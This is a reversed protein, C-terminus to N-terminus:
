EISTVVDSTQDSFEVSRERNTPGDCDWSWDWTFVVSGDEGAVVVKFPTSGYNVGYGPHGTNVTIAHSTRSGVSIAIEPGYGFERPDVVAKVCLFPQVLAKIPLDEIQERATGANNRGKHDWPIRSPLTKPRREHSITRIRSPSWKRAPIFKSKNRAQCETISHGPASARMTEMNPDQVLLTDLNGDYETILGPRYSRSGQEDLPMYSAAPMPIADPIPPYQYGNQDIQSAFLSSHDEDQMFFHPAFGPNPGLPITSCRQDHTDEPHVAQPPLLTQSTQPMCPQVSAGALQSPSAAWDTGNLYTTTDDGVASYGYLEQPNWGLERVAPFDDNEM